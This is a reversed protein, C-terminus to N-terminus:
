WQAMSSALLYTLICFIWSLHLGVCMRWTRSDKEAVPLHWLPQCAPQGSGRLCGPWVSTGDCPRQLCHHHPDRWHHFWESCWRLWEAGEWEPRLHHEDVPAGGWRRPDCDKQAELPALREQLWDDLLSFLSLHPPLFPLSIYSLISYQIWECFPARGQDISRPNHSKCLTFLNPNKLKVESLCCVM